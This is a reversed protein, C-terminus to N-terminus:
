ATAPIRRWVQWEEIAVQPELDSAIAQLLDSVFGHEVVFHVEDGTEIDTGSFIAVSGEDREMRTVALTISDTDM